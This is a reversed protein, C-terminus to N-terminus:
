KRLFSYNIIVTSTGAYAAIFVKKSHKKYM